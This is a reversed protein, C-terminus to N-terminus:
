YLPPHTQQPTVETVMSSSPHVPRNAGKVTGTGVRRALFADKAITRTSADGQTEATVGKVFSIVAMFNGAPLGAKACRANLVAQIKPSGDVIQGVYKEFRTSCFRRPLGEAGVPIIGGFIETAPVHVNDVVVPPKKAFDDTGGVDNIVAWICLALEVDAPSSEGFLSAIQGMYRTADDESMQGAAVVNGTVKLLKERFAGSTVLEGLTAAKPASMTAARDVIPQRIIQESERVPADRAVTPEFDLNFPQSFWNEAM